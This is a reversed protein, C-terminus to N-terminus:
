VQVSSKGYHNEHKSPSGEYYNNLYSAAYPYKSQLMGIRKEIIEAPVKDEMQSALTGQKDCYGHIYLPEFHISELLACTMEFDHATEGPFGIIVDTGIIPKDSIQRLSIIKPILEDVNYKRNMKKLINNSGSQIPVHIQYVNKNKVFNTVFSFYRILGDPHLDPLDIIFSLKISSMADLLMGLNVYIDEGYASLNECQIRFHTFGKRLAGEMESIINEIPVSILKGTAKCIACYSCNRSCGDSIKLSYVDNCSPTFLRPDWTNIAKHYTNIDYRNLTSYTSDPIKNYPIQSNFIDDLTSMNQLPILQIYKATPFTLMAPACGILVTKIGSELAQQVKFKTDEEKMGCSFFLLLEAQNIDSHIQINNAYFYKILKDYELLRRECLNEIIAVNKIM